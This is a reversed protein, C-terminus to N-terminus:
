AQLVNSSWGFYYDLTKEVPIFMECKRSLLKGGKKCYSVVGKETEEKV